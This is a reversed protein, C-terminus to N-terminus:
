GFHPDAVREARRNQPFPIERRYNPEVLSLGGMDPAAAPSRAGHPNQGDVKSPALAGRDGRPGDSFTFYLLCEGLLGSRADL